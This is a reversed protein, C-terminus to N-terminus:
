NIVIILEHPQEMPLQVRVRVRVRVRIPYKVLTQIENYIQDIAQNSGMGYFLVQDYDKLSSINFRVVFVECHIFIPLLVM